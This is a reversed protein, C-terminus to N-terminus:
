AYTWVVPGSIKLTFTATSREGVPGSLKWGRVTASFDFKELPSSGHITLRFDLITNASFAEYLAQIQADGQIFNCQLPIEAGDALGNRYTRAQDCLSTVEVASKDEGITSFDIVACMDSFVPTEGMDSLQFRFDNGILTDESAM